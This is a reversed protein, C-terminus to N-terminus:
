TSINVTVGKKLTNAVICGREAITVLKPLFSEVSASGTVIMEIRDYAAPTGAITGIIRVDIEGLEVERAQAAAVLNSMFCGGLAALLAEGGMPGANEGGKETPRDMVLNHERIRAESATTGARTLQVTIEAM